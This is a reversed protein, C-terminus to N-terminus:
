YRCSVAKVFSSTTEIEPNIDLFKINTGIENFEEKIKLGYADKGIVGAFYTKVGWKSLLYAANSAPGGGCEVRKDVRYKSNEVPFEDMMVTIDYTAHGICLIEM